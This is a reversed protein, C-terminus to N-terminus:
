CQGSAVCRGLADWANPFTWLQAATQNLAWTWVPTGPALIGWQVDLVTGVANELVQTEPDWTWQQATTGNCDWIQAPTGARVDRNRVDLCRESIPNIITGARRDYVWTQAPGLNCLGLQLPAGLDTRGGQVELCLGAISISGPTTFSDLTPNIYAYLTNIMSQMQFLPMKQKVQRAVRDMPSYEPDFGSLLAYNWAGTYIDACTYGVLPNTIDQNASWSCKVGGNMDRYQGQLFRRTRNLEGAFQGDSQWNPDFAAIVQQRLAIYEMLEPVGVRWDYVQGVSVTPRDPIEAQWPGSTVSDVFLRKFNVGSPDELELLVSDSAALANALLQPSQTGFAMATMVTDTASVMKGYRMSRVEAGIRWDLSSAISDLHQELAKMLAAYDPGSSPHILGFARLLASITGAAGTIGTYVGLISTANNVATQVDQPVYKEILTEKDAAAAPPSVAATAVLVFFGLHSRKM